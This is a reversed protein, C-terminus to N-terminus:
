NENMTGEQRKLSKNKRYLLITILFGFVLGGVHAANDINTSMLGYYLSCALAFLIKGITMNEVRGRNRILIWLLAGEIGFVAGSAGVSRIFSGEMYEMLMSVFDGCIGSGLYIFLYKFHGSMREVIDGLFYLWIMNSFLHSADVHLFMSTLMRYWQGQGIIAEAERAGYDLFFDGAFISIAFVLVNIFIIVHNVISGSWFNHWFSSNRQPQEGEQEILKVKRYAEEDFPEALCTQLCNKLGYFDEAKGDSIMLQKNTTDVIWCFRNEETLGSIEDPRNTLLLVITHVECINGNGFHWEIPKMFKDIKSKDLQIMKNCDIVHIANVFNNEIQFFIVFDERNTDLQTYGQRKLFYEIQELM